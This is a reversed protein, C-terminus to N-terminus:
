GREPVQKGLSSALTQLLRDPTYPMLLLKAEQFFGPEADEASLPGSAYVVKLSGNAQILQNALDRGSTGDPFSLDTLLLQVDNVQTEMLVAATSPTDAEIVRYGNRQLIHRALDRVQDNAEVLLITEREPVPATAEGPDDSRRSLQAVPLFVSFETGHGAMSTFEVWGGHQHVGGYITALGLGMAKGDPRTTFFPEFVHQQIEAPMGCGNDRIKLHVFHGPTVNAHPPRRDHFPDVWAPETHIEISGGQPMAGRSNLVLNVLILDLVRVDALIPAVGEGYHLEL